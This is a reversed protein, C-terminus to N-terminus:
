IMRSTGSSRTRVGSAWADVGSEPDCPYTLQWVAGGPALGLLMPREAGDYTVALDIVGAPAGPLAAWTHGDATSYVSTLTAVILMTTGHVRHLATVPTDDLETSQWHGGDWDWVRSGVAVWIGAGDGPCISVRPWTTTDVLWLEWTRGADLSRWLTVRADVPAFGAAVLVRADDSQQWVELAVVPHGSGLTALRQWRRGADDSHWIAGDDAGAWLDAPHALDTAIAAVRSGPPELVLRWGAGAANSSFLGVETAALWGMHHSCAVAFLTGLDMLESLPRWTFTSDLRWAGGSPGFAIVPGGEWVAWRTIDRAALQADLRWSMGADDSFLLGADNLGAYVRGSRAALSLVPWGEAVIRWSEGGDTSRILLGEGTGAILVPGSPSDFFLLGNIAGFAAAAPLTQWTDGGDVSRYIGHEEGGAYVTRDDAFRPSVAFTQVCVGELGHDARKWARGGNPSRYVGDASAAFVIARQECVPAPALALVTFDTLGVNALHWHRGGDTSRLIGAGATGALLVRDQTFCPSMAFCTVGSTTGDVWATHWERGGDVSYLIGTPSGGAVLVGDAAVLASARVPIEKGARWRGIDGQWIGATTALWITTQGCAAIGLVTGGAAIPGSCRWGTQAAPGSVTM